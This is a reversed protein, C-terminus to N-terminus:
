LVIKGSVAAWRLRPLREHMSPADHWEDADPMFMPKRPRRDSRPHGLFFDKLRDEVLDSSKEPVSRWV